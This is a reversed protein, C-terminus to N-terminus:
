NRFIAMQCADFGVTISKFIQSFFSKFLLNLNGSKSPTSSKTSAKSAKQNNVRWEKTQRAWSDKSDKWKRELSGKQIKVKSDCKEKWENKKSQGMICEFIWFEDWIPPHNILIIKPYFNRLFFGRWNLYGYEILHVKWTHFTPWPKHNSLFSLYVWITNWPSWVLSWKKTAHLIIKKIRRKMKIKVWKKGKPKKENWKWKEKTGKWREVKSKSM